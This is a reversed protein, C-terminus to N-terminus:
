GVWFPKKCELLVQRESLGLDITVREPDHILLAHLQKRTTHRRMWRKWPACYLASWLDLTIQRPLYRSHAM